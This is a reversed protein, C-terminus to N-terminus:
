PAGKWLTINAELRLGYRPALRAIGDLAKADILVKRRNSHGATGQLDFEKRLKAGIAQGTLLTGEWERILDGIESYYINPDKGAEIFHKRRNLLTVLARFILGAESDAKTVTEREAFRRAFREMRVKAGEDETIVLIPGLIQNQRPQFVGDPNYPSLESLLDRHYNALRWALLKNRIERPRDWTILVPLQSPIPRTCPYFTQTICRSRLAADKFETRGAILKPGFAEYSQVAFGPGDCRPVTGPNRDYGSKLVASVVNWAESGPVLEVEDVELTGPYLQLLRYISAGSAAGGLVVTHYSVAGVIQIFRSKGTGEQGIARLYALATFKDYLWTFMAYYAAVEEFDAPIDCYDHIFEQVEAVLQAQSELKGIASPLLVRGDTEWRPLYITDRYKFSQRIEERGDPHLVVLSGKDEKPDYLAEILTGDPLVEKSVRKYEKEKEKSEM